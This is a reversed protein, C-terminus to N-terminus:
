ESDDESPPVMSKIGVNFRVTHIRANALIANSLFTRIGNSPFFYLCFGSAKALRNFFRFVPIFFQHGPLSAQNRQPLTAVATRMHALSFDSKYMPVM